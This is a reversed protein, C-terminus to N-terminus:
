MINRWTTEEESEIAINLLDNVMKLPDIVFPPRNIKKLADPYNDDVITILGLKDGKMIANEVEENTFQEKDRLSKLILDFNGEYKYYMALIIGRM